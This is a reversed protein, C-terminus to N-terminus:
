MVPYWCRVSKDRHAAGLNSGLSTLTIYANAAEGACRQFFLRSLVPSVILYVAVETGGTTLDTGGRCKGGLNTRQTQRGLLDSFVDCLSGAVPYSCYADM